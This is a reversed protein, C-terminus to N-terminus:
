DRIIPVCFYDADFHKLHKQQNEHFLIQRREDFVSLRAVFRHTERFNNAVFAADNTGEFQHAVLECKHVAMKDWFRVFHQFAVFVGFQKQLRNPDAFLVNLEVDAGVEEKPLAIQVVSDVVVVFFHDSFDFVVVHLIQQEFILEYLLSKRVLNKVIEALGFDVEERSVASNTSGILIRVLIILRRGPAVSYHHARVSLEVHSIIVANLSDLM